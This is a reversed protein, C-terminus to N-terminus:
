LSHPPLLLLLFIHPVHTNHRKLRHVPPGQLLAVNEGAIASEPRAPSNLKAPGYGVRRVRTHIKHGLGVARALLASHIRLIWLTDVGLTTRSPQSRPSTLRDSKPDREVWTAGRFMFVYLPATVVHPFSVRFFILVAVPAPVLRLYSRPQRRISVAPDQKNPRQADNCSVVAWSNLPKPDRRSELTRVELPEAWKGPAIKV